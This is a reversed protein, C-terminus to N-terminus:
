PARRQRKKRELDTFGLATNRADFLGLALVVARAQPLDIEVAPEFIDRHSVRVTWFADTTGRSQLHIEIPEGGARTSFDSLEHDTTDMGPLYGPAEPFIPFRFRTQMAPIGNRVAPFESNALDM